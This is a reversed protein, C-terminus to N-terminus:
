MISLYDASCVGVVLTILFNLPTAIRGGTSKEQGAVVDTDLSMTLAVPAQDDLTFQHHAMVNDGKPNIPKMAKLDVLPVIGSDVGKCM